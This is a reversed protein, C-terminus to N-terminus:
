PTITYATAPEMATVLGHTYLLSEFRDSRGHNLEDDLDPYARRVLDWAEAPHARLYALGRATARLFRPLRPDAAERARAVMILDDFPPVGNTEYDFGITPAGHLRLELPEFNRYVSVADVQHSLLAVTLQEGIQVMKVDNLSLGARHLMVGVMMKEVEGSGYGIRKGRLGALRDIGASKLVVLTSLSHDILVGIRVLELGAARQELFQPEATLAIDGQGAAVLKPGMTADAPPILQVDLGEEKYAGIQQAVLLPAHDPNIFWDLVVSLHDTAAAQQPSLQLLLFLLGEKRFFLLLLSKSKSDRVRQSRARDTSAIKKM